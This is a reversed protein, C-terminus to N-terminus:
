PNIALDITIEYGYVLRENDRVYNLCANYVSRYAYSIFSPSFSLIEKKEWYRIFFEQIIDEAASSDQIIKYALIYLRDSYHYFLQKFANEDGARVEKILKEELNKM